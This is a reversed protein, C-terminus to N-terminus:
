DGLLRLGLIVPVERPVTPEMEGYGPPTQRRRFAWRIEFRKRKFAASTAEGNNAITPAVVPFPGYVNAGEGFGFDLQPAAGSTLEPCVWEAFAADVPTFIIHFYDGLVAGVFTTETVQVAEGTAQSTDAGFVWGTTGDCDVELWRDSREGVCHFAPTRSRVSCRAGRPLEKRPGARSDPRARLTAGQRVISIEAPGGMAPPAGLVVAALSLISVMRVRCCTMSRSRAAAHKYRHLFDVARRMLEQVAVADDM